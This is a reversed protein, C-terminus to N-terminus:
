RVGSTDNRLPVAISGRLIFQDYFTPSEPQKELSALHFDQGLDALRPGFICGQHEPRFVEHNLKQNTLGNLQRELLEKVHQVSTVLPASVLNSACKEMQLPQTPGTDALQQFIGM